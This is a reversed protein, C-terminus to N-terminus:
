GWRSGRSTSVSCSGRSCCSSSCCCSASWACRSRTSCSVSSRACSTTAPNAPKLSRPLQRRTGLPDAPGPRLPPALCWRLRLGPDLRSPQARDLPRRAAAPRRARPRDARWGRLKAVERAIENRLQALRELGQLGAHKGMFGLGLCLGYVELVDAAAASRDSRVKDLKRFFEEGANFDDFLELQLPKSAWRERFPFDSGLVIEDLLAVIAYRADHVDRAAAGSFGAQREFEALMRHIEKRLTTEDPPEAAQRLQVALGLLEESAASLTAGERRARSETPTVTETV